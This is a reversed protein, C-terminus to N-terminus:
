WGPGIAEVVEMMVEPLPRKVDNLAKGVEYLCRLEKAREQLDGILKETEKM